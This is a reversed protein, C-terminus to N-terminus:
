YIKLWLKLLKIIWRSIYLVDLSSQWSVKEANENEDNENKILM